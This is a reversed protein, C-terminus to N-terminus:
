FNRNKQDSSVVGRGIINLHVGLCYNVMPWCLLRLLTVGIVPLNCEMLHFKIPKDAKILRGKNSFRGSVM